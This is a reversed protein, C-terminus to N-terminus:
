EAKIGAEEVVKAWMETESHLHEAFREVSGGEPILGLAKYREQMEPRKFAINFAENLRAVVEPPMGKPGVFGHFAQIVLDPYGLEVLTPVDPVVENRIAGTVALGRVTGAKNHEVLTAVNEVMFDIRGAVLEQVAPAAGGFPVHVFKVGFANGLLESSLHHASGVGSSGYLLEQKKALDIFEAVSHVPLGGRVTLMNMTSAAWFIPQIDTRVDYPMDYLSANSACSGVACLALTYGDPASKLVANVGINGNAGAQNEVIISQGLEEGVYQAYLRAVIDAVGGPSYPVIIKLQHDPFQAFAMSPMMLLLIAVIFRM